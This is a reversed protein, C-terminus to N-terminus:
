RKAQSFEQKKARKRIYVTGPLGRAPATAGTHGCSKRSTRILGSFFWVCIKSVAQTVFYWGQEQFKPVVVSHEAMRAAFPAVLYTTQERDQWGKEAQRQHVIAQKPLPQTLFYEFFLFPIMELHKSFASKIEHECTRNCGYAAVYFLQYLDDVDVNM